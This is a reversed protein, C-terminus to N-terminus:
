LYYNVSSILKDTVETAIFSEPKEKTLDGRYKWPLTYFKGRWETLCEECTFKDYHFVANLHKVTNHKRTINETQSERDKLTATKPFCHPCHDCDQNALKKIEQVLNHYTSAEEYGLLIKM